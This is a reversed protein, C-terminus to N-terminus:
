VENLKLLNYKKHKATKFYEHKRQYKDTIKSLIGM